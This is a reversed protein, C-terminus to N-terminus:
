LSIYKLFFSVILTLLSGEGRFAVNNFGNETEEPSPCADCGNEFGDEMERAILATPVCRSLIFSFLYCKRCILVLSFMIIDNYRETPVM